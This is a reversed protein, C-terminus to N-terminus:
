TGLKKSTQEMLLKDTRHLYGYGTGESPNRLRGM